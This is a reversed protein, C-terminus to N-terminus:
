DIIIKKEVTADDYIIFYPINPRVSSNRGLYDVVKIIKKENTYM